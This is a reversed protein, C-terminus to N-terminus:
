KAKKKKLNLLVYILILVLVVGGIVIFCNNYPVKEGFFYLNCDASDKISETIEAPLDAKEFERFVGQMCHNRLLSTAYTGPLLSVIKQVGESFNSIPMYAGCIFGYMSSVVSGVASIQGQSTLFFSIVSSLATGFMVILFVDLLILLVDTFSLYWGIFSIYILGAIMAVLSIIFTSFFTALYYGLALTSGKVPTMAIDKAAGTVKDQVMLMNSCFAVTVCCVSLLSSVLQGGVLGKILSDSVKVGEPISLRFSDEFLGSLFTTYLVLLILPTILSVLFMAKDKFFLKINRSILIRLTKM